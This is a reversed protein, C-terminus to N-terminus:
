EWGRKKRIEEYKTLINKVEDAVAKTTVKAGAIADHRM